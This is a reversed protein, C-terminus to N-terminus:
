RRGSTPVPQPNAGPTAIRVATGPTLSQAAGLLVVDGEHVQGSLEVEETLEDRLGPKVPQREVAGNRVVAITAVGAQTVVASAPVVLGVHSETAVRGQAFLGAVLNHDGNPMNVYVRV